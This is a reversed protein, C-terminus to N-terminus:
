LDSSQYPFWTYVALKMGTDADSFNIPRSYKTETVYHQQNIVICNYLILKSFYNFINAQQSMTFENAGTVVFRAESNWFRIFSQNQDEILWKIEAKCRELNGDQILIIYSGDRDIFDTKTTKSINGDVTVVVPWIATRHIQVILEQQV